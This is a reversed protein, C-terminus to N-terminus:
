KSSAGTVHSDKATWIVAWMSVGGIVFAEAEVVSVGLFRVMTGFNTPVGFRLLSCVLALASGAALVIAATRWAAHPIADLWARHRYAIVALVALGLATSGHQLVKYLSVVGWRTALISSSLVSVHRVMWGYQHTFSDWLVHTIAGVLVALCLVAFRRTPGFPFPEAPACPSGAGRGAVMCLVPPKWVRHVTWLAIMGVPVCFLFLGPITHSIHSVPELRLVYELDPSVSGVILASMPLGFRRLPLVAVPHALTFPM